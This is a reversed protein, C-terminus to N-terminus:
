SGGRTLSFVEPSDILVRQCILGGQAPHVSHRLAAQSRFDNAETHALLSDAELGASIFQDGARRSTIDRNWSSM